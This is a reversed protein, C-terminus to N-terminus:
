HTISKTRMLLICHYLIPINQWLFNYVFDQNLEFIKIFKKQTLIHRNKKHIICINSFIPVTKCMFVENTSFEKHIRPEFRALVRCVQIITVDRSWLTKIVKTLM